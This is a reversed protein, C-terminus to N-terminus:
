SVTSRMLPAFLLPRRDRSAGGLIGSTGRGSTAASCHPGGGGPQGARARAFHAARLTPACLCIKRPQPLTAWRSNAPAQNPAMCCAPAGRVHAWNYSQGCTFPQEPRWISLPLAVPQNVGCCPIDYSQAATHTTVEGAVAASLPPDWCGSVWSFRCSNGFCVRACDVHMTKQKDYGDDDAASWSNRRGVRTALGASAPRLRAPAWSARSPSGSPCLAAHCIPHSPRAKPGAM